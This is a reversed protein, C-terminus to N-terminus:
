ALLALELRFARAQIRIAESQVRRLVQYIRVIGIGPDTTAKVADASVYFKSVRARFKAQLARSQSIGRFHSLLTMAEHAYTGPKLPLDLRCLVGLALREEADTLQQLNSVGRARYLLSLMTELDDVQVGKPLRLKDEALMKTLVPGRM